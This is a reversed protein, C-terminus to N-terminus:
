RARELINDTLSLGESHRVAGGEMVFLAEVSSIKEVLGLGEDPGLVFLGTALADADAGRAAVVVVSTVGQVPWGSRPDVIHGFREGDVILYQEYDGSTAIACDSLHGVALLQERRPHRIGVQWPEGGRTGALVLDGGADIIFDSFGRARLLAAARDAAFGKGVSGFGLKMGARRLRVTDGLVEVREHGVRALNERIAQESPSVGQARAESWLEFLPGGTVDFAGGTRRAWRMAIALLERLEAAVLVAAQGAARNVKSTDSGPQWSSIRQELEAADDLAARIAEAAAPERGPPAWVKVAFETGMLPRLAELVVGSGADISARPGTGASDVTNRAAYGAIAIAVVGIM